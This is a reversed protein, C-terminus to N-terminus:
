ELGAFVDDLMVAPTAPWAVVAWERSVRRQWQETNDPDDSMVHLQSRHERLGAVIRDAVSRCDVTVGIQDDPVGRMHYTLTPDFVALGLEARQRNWREFVSLPVAGHLLRRFGRRGSAAFRLFAADTAAGVAIHDPHGFVGDPGFTGVVDPEEEDLIAAIEDALEDPPVDAVAGDPYGLWEHRDPIRGLVRWGAEDEARRVAGLTARTAPFGDPIQGAGGDTAHVLVFRFNKDDRHLAVTGAMWYADDDPHALVVLLVRRGTVGHSDCIGM